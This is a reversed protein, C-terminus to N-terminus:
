VEKKSSRQLLIKTQKTAREFEPLDKERIRRIRDDLEFLDSLTLTRDVGKPSKNESKGEGKVENLGLEQCQKKLFKIVKPSATNKESVDYILKLLLEELYQIESESRAISGHWAMKNINALDKRKELQGIVEKRNELASVIRLLPGEIKKSKFELKIQTSKFFLGKEFHTLMNRLLINFGALILLLNCVYIYNLMDYFGILGAFSIIVCLLLFIVPFYDLVLIILKTKVEGLLSFNKVKKFWIMGIFGWVLFFIATWIVGLTPYSLLLISNILPGSCIFLPVSILYTIKKFLEKEDICTQARSFLRSSVAQVVPALLGFGIFTASVTAITSFFTRDISEM